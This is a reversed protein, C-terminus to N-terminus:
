LEQYAMAFIRFSNFDQLVNRLDVALVVQKVERETVKLFQVLAQNSDIINTFCLPLALINNSPFQLM